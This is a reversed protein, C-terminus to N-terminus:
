KDPEAHALFDLESHGQLLFHGMTLSLGREQRREKSHLLGGQFVSLLSSLVVFCSNQQHVHPDSFLARAARRLRCEPVPRESKPATVRVTLM